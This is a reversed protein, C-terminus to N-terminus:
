GGARPGSSRTWSTRPPTFRYGGPLSRALPSVIRWKDAMVEPLEAGDHRLPWFYRLQALAASHFTRATVRGLGLGQVRAAMEGAAKETFTVLLVAREPVVGTAVAYAARHSVVRTKGSGAGAIIAVPGSVTTVAERQADNLGELIRETGTM